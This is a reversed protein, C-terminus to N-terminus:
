GNSSGGNIDLLGLDGGDLDILFDTTSASGGDFDAVPKSTGALVSGNSSWFFTNGSNVNLCFSAGDGGTSNFDSDQPCGNVGNVWRPNM